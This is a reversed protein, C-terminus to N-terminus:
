SPSQDVPLASRNMNMSNEPSQRGIRPLDRVQRCDAENNLPDAVRDPRLGSRYPSRGGALGLSAACRLDSVSPLHGVSNLLNDSMLRM